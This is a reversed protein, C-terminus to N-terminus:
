YFIHSICNKYEQNNTRTQDIVSGLYKFSKCKAMVKSNIMIDPSPADPDSFPLFLYKTKTKSIKLDNEEHATKQRNFIEQLKAADKDVQGLNDAFLVSRLPKNMLTVTLFNIAINFFIPSAKKIYEQKSLSHSQYEQQADSGQTVLHYMEKIINSKLSVMAEYHPGFLIMYLPIM